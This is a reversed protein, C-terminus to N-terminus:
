NVDSLRGGFSRPEFPLTAAGRVPCAEFESLAFRPGDLSATWAPESEFLALVLDELLIRSEM